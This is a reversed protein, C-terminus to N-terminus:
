VLEQEALLRSDRQAHQNFWEWIHPHNLFDPGYQAYLQASFDHTQCDRLHDLLTMAAFFGSGKVVDPLKQCYLAVNESGFTERCHRCRWSCQVIRRMFNPDGGAVGDVAGGPGRRRQPRHRVAPKSTFSKAM